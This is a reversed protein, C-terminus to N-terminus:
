AAVEVKCLPCHEMPEIDHEGEDHMRELYNRAPWDEIRALHVRCYGIKGWTVEIYVAIERGCDYWCLRDTAPHRQPLPSAAAATGQFVPDGPFPNPSGVGAVSTELKTM